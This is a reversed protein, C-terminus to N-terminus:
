GSRRSDTHTRLLSMLVPGVSFQGGRARGTLNRLYGGPSKIAEARQLIAAVVVAADEDGLVASAEEWASPSIGLVSRVLSATAVFDRWSSIGHRAYDVIDPCAELVMGLPFRRQSPPDGDLNQAPGRRVSPADSKPVVVGRSQQPAPESENPNTNSSQIHRGFHSENASKNQSNVHTELVKRIQEALGGLEDLLPELEAKTATRPIRGALVLYAEQFGRWDGPVGEEAGAAIM